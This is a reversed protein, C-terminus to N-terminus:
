DSSGNKAYCVEGTEAGEANFLQNRSRRATGIRLGKEKLFSPGRM